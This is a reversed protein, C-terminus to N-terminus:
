RIPIQRSDEKPEVKLEVNFSPLQKRLVKVDRLVSELTVERSVYGPVGHILQPNASQTSNTQRGLAKKGEAKLIIKNVKKRGDTIYDTDIMDYSRLISLKNSIYQRNSAETKSTRGYVRVMEDFTVENFNPTDSYFKKLINTALNYSKYMAMEKIIDYLFSLM